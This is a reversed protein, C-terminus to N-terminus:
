RGKDLCHNCLMYGRGNCDSYVLTEFDETTRQGCIDCPGGGVDSADFGDGIFEADKGDITAYYGGDAREQVDTIIM